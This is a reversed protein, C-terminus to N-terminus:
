IDFDPTCGNSCTSDEEKLTNQKVEVTIKQMLQDYKKPHQKKLIKRASSCNKNSYDFDTGARILLEICEINGNWAAEILANCGDCDLINPDAGRELLLKIIEPSGRWAAETLAAAGDTDKKNPDAGANFLETLKKINGERAAKVMQRATKKLM